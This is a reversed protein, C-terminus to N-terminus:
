VIFNENGGNSAELFLLFPNIGLNGFEPLHQARGGPVTCRRCWPLAAPHGGSGAGPNCGRL